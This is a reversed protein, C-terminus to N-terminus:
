RDAPINKAEKVWELIEDATNKEDLELNWVNEQM